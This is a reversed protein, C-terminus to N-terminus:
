ILSRSVCNLKPCRSALLELRTAQAEAIMAADSISTGFEVFEISHEARKRLLTDFHQLAKETEEVDNLRVRSPLIMVDEPCLDKLVHFSACAILQLVVVSSYDLQRRIVVFNKVNAGKLFKEMNSESLLNKDEGDGLCSKKLHAAALYEVSAFKYM